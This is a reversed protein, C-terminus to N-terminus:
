LHRYHLTLSVLAGEESAQELVAQSSNWDYTDLYDEVTLDDGVLWNELWKRRVRFTVFSHELVTDSFGDPMFQRIVEGYTHLTVDEM